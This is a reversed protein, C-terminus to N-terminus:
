TAGPLWCCERRADKHTTRTWFRHELVVHRKGAKNNLYERPQTTSHDALGNEPSTEARERWPTHRRNAPYPPSPSIHHCATPYRSLCHSIKSYPSLVRARRRRKIHRPPSEKSGWGNPGQYFHLKAIFGTYRRKPHGVSRALYHAKCTSFQAPTGGILKHM